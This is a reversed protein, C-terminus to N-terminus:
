IRELRYLKTVLMLPIGYQDVITERPDNRSSTVLDYGDVPKGHVDVVLKKVYTTTEMEWVDRDLNYRFYTAKAGATPVAKVFWYVSANDRAGRPKALTQRGKGYSLNYIVSAVGKGDIKAASGHLAKQKGIRSTISCYLQRGKADFSEQRVVKRPAGNVTLFMTLETDKGGSMNPAQHYTARGVEKSGSFVFFKTQACALGPLFLLFAFGVRV